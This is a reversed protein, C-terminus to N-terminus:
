GEVHRLRVAAAIAQVSLTNGVREASQFETVKNPDSGNKNNPIPVGM